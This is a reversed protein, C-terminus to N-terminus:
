FKIKILKKIKNRKGCFKQKFIFKLFTFSFFIFFNDNKSLLYSMDLFYNM